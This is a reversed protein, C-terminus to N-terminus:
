GLREVSSRAKDALQEIQEKTLRGDANQAQMAALAEAGIRYRQLAALVTDAVQLLTLVESM